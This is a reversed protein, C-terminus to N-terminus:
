RLDSSLQSCGELHIKKGNTTNVSVMIEALLANPLQNTLKRLLRYGSKVSYKGKDDEIWILVDESVNLSLPINLINAADHENFIDRVLDHDWEKANVKFLSSVTANQLEPVCPTSVRATDTKPIWPDYWINISFGNGM